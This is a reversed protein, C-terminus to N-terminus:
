TGDQRADDEGRRRADPDVAPIVEIVRQMVRAITEDADNLASEVSAPLQAELLRNLAAEDQPQLDQLPM